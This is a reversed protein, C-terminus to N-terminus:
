AVSRQRRRALLVLGVGLALLASAAAILPDTLSTGTAALKDALEVPVDSDGATPNTTTPTTTTSPAAAAPVTAAAVAVSSAASVGITSVQDAAVIGCTYHAGPTLGGVTIPSSLGTASGTQGGDSSSCTARYSIDISQASTSFSALAPQTATFAITLSGPGPTISSISLAVCGFCHDIGTVTQGPAVSILSAGEEVPDLRQNAPPLVVPPGDWFVGQYIISPDQPDPVYPSPDGGTHSCQLFIVVFTGSPVSISYTGDAAIPAGIGYQDPLFAVVCADAMGVGHRNVVRGSITGTAGTVMVADIGSTPLGATVTVLQAAASTAVGPYWQGALQPTDRCDVFQVRYDGAPVGLTYDGSSDTTLIVTAGGTARSAQVCVGELPQGLTDTVTGIISGTPALTVDIGTIDSGGNLPITAASAYDAAGSWWQAIHTSPNGCDAFNLRVGVAPLGSLVYTGDSATSTDGVDHLQGVTGGVATVCVDGAPAGGVSTVTGSVTAGTTLVSNIGTKLPSDAMSLTLRDGLDQSAEGNWYNTAWVAPSASDEFQVKYDGPPVARTEYHGSSDTMAWGSAGGGQANVNVDIGPLGNGMGDTVTGAVAVGAVLQGDVGTVNDGSNLDIFPADNFSFNNGNWMPVDPGSGCDEFDVRVSVAPLQTITYTGDSATTAAGVSTFGGSSPVNANVCIGSLPAGGPSRTVTGSITAGGNLVMAVTSATTTMGNDVHLADATTSDSKGLYWQDLYAHNTCDVYSVVYDNTPLGTFTYSGSGDTTGGPGNLIQVCIGQLPNGGADTVLGTITGGGPPPAAAAPPAVAVALGAVLALAGAITRWMGSGM